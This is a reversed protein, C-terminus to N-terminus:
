RRGRKCDDLQACITVAIGVLAVAMFVWRLTKFYPVLPLIASQTETSSQLHDVPKTGPVM